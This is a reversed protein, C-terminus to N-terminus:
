WTYVSLIQPVGTSGNIVSSKIVIQFNKTSGLSDPLLRFFEPEVLLNAAAETGYSWL